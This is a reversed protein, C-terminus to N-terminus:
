LTLVMTIQFESTQKCLSDWLWRSVQWRKQHSTLNKYHPEKIKKSFEEFKGVVVEQSYNYPAAKAKEWVLHSSVAEWKEKNGEM